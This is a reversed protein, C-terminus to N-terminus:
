KVECERLNYPYYGMVQRILKFHHNDYIQNLKENTSICELRLYNKDNQKALEKCIDFIIGGLNKFGIKTVLKYIYYANADKDKWFNTRESLEFAAILQNDKVLIFYNEKEIIEIFESKPHNKLYQSWQNIENDEFWQMREKYLEMIDELDSMKAIKLVIEKEKLKKIMEASLKKNM